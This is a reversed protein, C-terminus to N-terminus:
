ILKLTDRFVYLTRLQRLKQPLAFFFIFTRLALVSLNESAAIRLSLTELSVTELRLSPCAN